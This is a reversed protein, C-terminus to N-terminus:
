SQNMPSNQQSSNMDKVAAITQCPQGRVISEKGHSIQKIQAGKKQWQLATQADLEYYNSIFIEDVDMDKIMYPVSGVHDIDEHSLFVADINSIGRSYLYSKM